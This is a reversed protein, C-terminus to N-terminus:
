AASLFASEEDTQTVTTFSNTHLENRNRVPEYWVQQALEWMDTERDRIAMTVVDRQRRHMVQSM